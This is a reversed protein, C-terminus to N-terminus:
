RENRKEGNLNISYASEFYSDHYEVCYGKKREPYPRYTYRNLKDSYKREMVGDQAMATLTAANLAVSPPDNNMNRPDADYDKKLKDNIRREIEHRTLFKYEGDTFASEFWHLNNMILTYVIHKDTKLKAM